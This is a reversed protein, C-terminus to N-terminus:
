HGFPESWRVPRKELAQVTSKGKYRRPRQDVEPGLGTYADQGTEAVGEKGRGEGRKGEKGGKCCNHLLGRALLLAQHSFGETWKEANRGM